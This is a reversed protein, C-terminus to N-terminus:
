WAAITVNGPTRSISGDMMEEVIIEQHVDLDYSCDSVFVGGHAIKGKGRPSAIYKSERFQGM